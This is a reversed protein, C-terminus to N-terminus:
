ELELCFLLACGSKRQWQMWLRQSIQLAILYVHMAHMEVATYQVLSAPMQVTEAHERRDDAGSIKDSVVRASPEQMAVHSAFEYRIM